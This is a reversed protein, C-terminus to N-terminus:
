VQSCVHTADICGNSGRLCPCNTTGSPCCRLSFSDWAESFRPENSSEQNGVKVLKFFVLDRGELSSAWAEPLPDPIEWVFKKTTYDVTGLVAMKDNITLKADYRTILSFQTQM